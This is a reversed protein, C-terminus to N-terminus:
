RAEPLLLTLCYLDFGVVEIDEFGDLWSAEVEGSKALEDRLTTRYTKLRDLTLSRASDLATGWLPQSILHKFDEVADDRLVKAASPTRQQAELLEEPTLIRVGDRSEEIGLTVVEELLTPPQTASTARLLGYGLLVIGRQGSVRYAATRAGTDEEERLADERLVANLRRVLPHGVDLVVADPHLAKDAPDLVATPIVDGVRAVRLRPNNIQISLTGNKKEQVSCQYTRLGEIIFRKIQEPTGFKHHMARLRETVDSVQVDAQGYFGESRMRNLANIDYIEEIDTEPEFDMALTMVDQSKRRKRRRTLVRLVTEESVTLPPAFGLDRRMQDLKRVLLQMVDEDSTDKCFVTRVYVVPARQGFRDVRGTRQEIRNPNYPVDYHVVMCSLSQLNLGESIVDTALLVAKSSAAFQDLRREREGESLDGYLTIVEFPEARMERAMYELTDKFRTFVIVRGPTRDDAKNLLEPLVRERLAKLKYDKAATIKKLGTLITSFERLQARKDVSLMATDAFRDQDDESDTDGTARDNLSSLLAEENEPQEDTAENDSPRRVELRRLRSDLSRRLAEPSSLARRHLHLRFWEAVQGRGSHEAQNVIYELSEDLQRLLKLYEAHLDVPVETDAPDERKPFPFVQGADEFWKQVDKRTRQCVHHVAAQRQPRIEGRVEEVLSPSLMKLLSCYSDTYGNHPTATLLLLHKAKKEALQSVLEYREMESKRGMRSITASSSEGRSSQSTKSHPRATNHAEDVVVLDWDRKLIEHRVRTDKAYDISVILRDYYGWPDAGPPISRELRRRTNSSFIEFDLYFLDRMQQQWQERLNAPTLILVSRARARALLEALILGAEVTKGLGTTDALLLRVRSQRLAMVLPVLQYEVPIVATRQISVFPASGHLADLRVAQLFLNQLALDGVRDIRPASLAGPEPAEMDVLFQQPRSAFDDIPTATM